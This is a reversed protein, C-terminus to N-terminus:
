NSCETFLLYLVVLVDTLSPGEVGLVIIEPGAGAQSCAFQGGFRRTAGRKTSTHQRETTAQKLPFNGGGGGGGGGGGQVDMASHPCMM